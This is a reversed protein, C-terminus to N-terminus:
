VYLTDGSAVSAGGLGASWGRTDIILGTIREARPIRGIRKYGNLISKYTVEENLLRARRRSVIRNLIERGQAYSHSVFKLM